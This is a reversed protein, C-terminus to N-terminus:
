PCWPHAPAPWPPGWGRAARRCPTHKRSLSLSPSHSLHLMHTQTHGLRAQRRAGRAGSAAGALGQWQSWGGGGWVCVFGRACRACRGRACIVRVCARLAGAWWVRVRARVCRRLRVAALRREDRRAHPLVDEHLSQVLHEPQEEPHVCRRHQERLIADRAVAREQLPPWLFVHRTPPHNNTHTPQPKTPTPARLVRCRPPPWNACFVLCVCAAARV